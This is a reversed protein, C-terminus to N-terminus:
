YIPNPKIAKSHVGSQKGPEDTEDVIFRSASWFGHQNAQQVDRPNVAQSLIAAFYFKVM